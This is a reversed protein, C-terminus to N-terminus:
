GQSRRQSVPHLPCATVHSAGLTRGGFVSSHGTRLWSHPDIEWSVGFLSFLLFAFSVCFTCFPHPDVQPSIRTRASGYNCHHRFQAHTFLEREHLFLDLTEFCATCYRLKHQKMLHSNLSQLNKFTQAKKPASKGGKHICHLCRLSRLVSFYEKLQPGTFYAQIEEDYVLKRNRFELSGDEQLADPDEVCQRKLSEVLNRQDTVIAVNWDVKCLPCVPPGLSKKRQDPFRQQHRAAASKKTIHLRM